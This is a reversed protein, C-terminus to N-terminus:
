TGLTYDSLTYSNLHCTHVTKYGAGVITGRDTPLLFTVVDDSSLWLMTVMHLFQRHPNIFKFWNEFCFLQEAKAMYWYAKNHARKFYRKKKKFMQDLEQESSVEVRQSGDESTALSLWSFAECQRTRLDLKRVGSRGRATVPFQALEVDSRLFLIVLFWLQKQKNTQKHIKPKM